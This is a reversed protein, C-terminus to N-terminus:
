VKLGPCVQSLFTVFITKKKKWLLEDSNGSDCEPGQWKAPQTLELADHSANM